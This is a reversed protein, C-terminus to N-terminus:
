PDVVIDDEDPIDMSSSIVSPKKIFKFSRFIHQKVLQFIIDLIEKDKQVNEGLFISIEHLQKTKLEIESNTYEFVPFNYLIMCDKLNKMTNEINLNDYKHGEKDKTKQYVGIYDNNSNSDDIKDLLPSKNEEFNEEKEQCNKKRSFPKSLNIIKELNLIKKKNKNEECSAARIHSSIFDIKRKPENKM